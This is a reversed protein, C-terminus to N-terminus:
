KIILPAKHLNFSLYCFFEGLKKCYEEKFTSDLSLTQLITQARTTNCIDIKLLTSGLRMSLHNLHSIHCWLPLYIFYSLKMSEGLNIFSWRLKWLNVFVFRPKLNNSRIVNKNDNENVLVASSYGILYESIKYIYIYISDVFDYLIYNYDRRQNASNKYELAVLILSLVRLMSKSARCPPNRTLRWDWLEFIRPSRVYDLWM